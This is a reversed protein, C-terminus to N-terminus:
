FSFSSRQTLPIARVNRDDVNGKNIVMNVAKDLECGHSQIVMIKLVNKM